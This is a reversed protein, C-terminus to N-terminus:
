SDNQEPEPPESGDDSEQRPVHTRLLHSITKLASTTDSALRSGEQTLSRDLLALMRGYSRGATEVQSTTETLISPRAADRQRDVLDTLSGVLLDTREALRGYVRKGAALSALLVQQDTPSIEAATMPTQEPVAQRSGEPGLQWWLLILVLAAAVAMGVRWRSAARPADRRDVAPAVPLSLDPLEAEREAWPEADDRLRQILRRSNTELARLEPDQDLLRCVWRPLERGTDTSSSILWRAIFRRM